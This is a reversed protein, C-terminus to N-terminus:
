TNRIMVRQGNEAVEGMAVFGLRKWFGEARPNTTLWVQSVRNCRLVQAIHDFMRRGWGRKRNEPAVYFELICGTGPREDRDIKAHVFGICADGHRLLLLWRGPDAQRRLISQLRETLHVRSPTLAPCPPQM